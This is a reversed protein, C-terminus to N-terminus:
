QCRVEYTECDRKVCTKWRGSRGTVPRCTTCSPPCVDAPPSPGGGGRPDGEEGRCFFDSLDSPFGAENHEAVCRWYESTAILQPLIGATQGIAIRDVRSFGACRYRESTTYLSAEATFSPMSM